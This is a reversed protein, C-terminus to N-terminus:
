NLHTLYEIRDWAQNLLADFERKQAGAGKKVWIVDHGDKLAARCYGVDDDVLTAHPRNHQRKLHDVRTSKSIGFPGTDSGYVFEDPIIHDLKMFKLAPRIVKAYGSSLVCLLDGRDKCQQLVARLEDVRQQGGFAALLKGNLCWAYLNRLQADPGQLGGLEAWLFIEAITKDFDIAVLRGSSSEEEIFPVEERLTLMNQFKPLENTPSKIYMEGNKTAVGCKKGGPFLRQETGKELAPMPSSHPTNTAPVGAQTSIIRNVGLLNTSNMKWQLHSNGRPPMNIAIRVAGATTTATMGPRSAMRQTNFQTVNISQPTLGKSVLAPPKVQRAVNMKPQYVQYHSVLRMTPNFTKQNKPRLVAPTIKQQANYFNAVSPRQFLFPQNVM